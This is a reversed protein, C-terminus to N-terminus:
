LAADFLHQVADVRAKVGEEQNRLAERLGSNTLSLEDLHEEYSRVRDESDSIQALFESWRLWPATLTRRRTTPGQEPSKIRM